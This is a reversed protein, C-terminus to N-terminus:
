VKYSNKGGKNKTRCFARSFSCAINRSQPINKLRDEKKRSENDEEEEGEEVQLLRINGGAVNHVVDGLLCFYLWGEGKLM